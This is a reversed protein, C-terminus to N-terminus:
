DTPLSLTVRVAGAAESQLRATMSQSPAWRVLAHALDAATMASPLKCEIMSATAGHVRRVRAFREDAEIAFTAERGGDLVRALAWSGLTQLLGSGASAAVFPSLSPEYHSSTQGFSGETAM